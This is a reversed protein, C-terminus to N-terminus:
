LLLCDRYVDTICVCRWKMWSINRWRISLFPKRINVIFGSCVIIFLSRSLNNQWALSFTFGMFIYHGPKIEM